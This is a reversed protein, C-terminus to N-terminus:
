RPPAAEPRRRLRLTRHAAAAAAFGLCGVIIFVTSGYSIGPLLVCRSLDYPDYHVTAAAGLPFTRTDGPLNEMGIRVAGCHYYGPGYPFEAVIRSTMDEAMGVQESIIIKGDAAPWHLSDLGVRMGRVGVLTFALGLIVGVSRVLPLNGIHLIIAEM